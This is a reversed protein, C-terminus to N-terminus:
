KAKRREALVPVSTKSKAEAAQQARIRAFTAAVDTQASNRYPFKPSLISDPSATSRLPKFEESM